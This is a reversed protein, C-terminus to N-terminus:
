WINLIKAIEVVGNFLDEDKETTLYKIAIDSIKKDKYCAIINLTDSVYNIYMAEPDYMGRLYNNNDRVNGLCDEIEGELDTRSFTPDKKYWLRRAPKTNGKKGIISEQLTKM